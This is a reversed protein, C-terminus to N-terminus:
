CNDLTKKKKKKIGRSGANLDKIRWIYAHSGSMRGGVGATVVKNLNNERGPIGRAPKESVVGGM